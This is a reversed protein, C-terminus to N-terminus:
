HGFQCPALCQRRVEVRLLSVKSPLVDMGKLIRELDVVGMGLVAEAARKGWVAEAAGDRRKGFGGSNRGRYMRLAAVEAM